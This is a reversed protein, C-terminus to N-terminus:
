LIHHSLLTLQGLSARTMNKIPRFIQGDNNKPWQSTITVEGWPSIKLVMNEKFGLTKRANQLM